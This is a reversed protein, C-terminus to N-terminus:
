NRKKSGKVVGFRLSLPPVLSNFTTVTKSRGTVLGPITRSDQPLTGSLELPDLWFERALAYFDRNTAQEIVAGVFIYNTDSYSWQSGPEFLAPRDLMFELLEAAKWSRDPNKPLAAFLAPILHDAVGSTHNLLMRLTIRDHNAVRAFWEQRGLTNEVKEDLRLKGQEVLKLATAAVFTKGMSGALMRDDTKMPRETRPDSVGTAVALNRGDGLVVACTGGPFGATERFDDLSQHLIRKVEEVSAPPGAKTQALASRALILCAAIRCTVRGVQIANHTARHTSANM